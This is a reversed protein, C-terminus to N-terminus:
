TTPAVQSVYTLVSEYAWWAGGGVMVTFLAALPLGMGLGGLFLSSGVVALLWLTLVVLSPRVRVVVEQVGGERRIVASVMNVGLVRSGMPLERAWWHNGWRVPNHWLAVSGDSLVRGGAQADDQIRSLEVARAGAAVPVRHRAVEIGLGHHWPSTSTLAASDALMALTVLLAVGFLGEL